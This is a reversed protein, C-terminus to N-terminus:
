DNESDKDMSEYPEDIFPKFDNYKNHSDVPNNNMEDTLQWHRNFPDAGKATTDYFDCDTLGHYLYEISEPGSWLGKDRLEQEYEKEEKTIYDEKLGIMLGFM